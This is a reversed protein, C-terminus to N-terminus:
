FSDDISFEGNDVNFFSYSKGTQEVIRLLRDRETDTIFIQKFTKRSVLEILRSGRRNDLKDFMDDLLLIPSFDCNKQLFEYQALKLAIFFTKIQGQSAVKKVPHGNLLFELDDRHVGKTTYGLIKDREHNSRLQSEM